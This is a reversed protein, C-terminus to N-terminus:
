FQMLDFETVFYELYRVLLATKGSATPGTVVTMEGNPFVVDINKLEFRLKEANTGSDRAPEAAKKRFPIIRKFFSEAKKEAEPKKESTNWRFSANSIGIPAM